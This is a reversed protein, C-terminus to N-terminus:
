CVVFKFRNIYSNKIIDRRNYLFFGANRKSSSRKPLNLMEFNYLDSEVEPGEKVEYGLGIFIDEIEEVTKTLIHKHGLNITKGPLSIDITQAQLMENIKSADIIEKQQDLLASIKSKAENILKGVLPKQDNPLNKMDQMLVNFESKKGLYKAKIDLMENITKCKKIEAEASLVLNTLKTEM